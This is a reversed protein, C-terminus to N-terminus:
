IGFSKLIEVRNLTNLQSALQNLSGSMAQNCISRYVKKASRSLRSGGSTSRLRELNQVWGRQRDRTFLCDKNSWKNPKFRGGVAVINIM